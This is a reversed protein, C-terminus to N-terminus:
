KSGASSPATAAAQASSPASATPAAPPAVTGVIGFPKLAGMGAFVRRPHGDYLAQAQAQNCGHTIVGVGPMSVVVVCLPGGQGPMLGWLATNIGGKAKKSTALRVAQYTKGQHAVSGFLPLIAKGLGKNAKNRKAM